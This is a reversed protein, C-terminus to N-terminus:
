GAAQRAVLDDLIAATATAGIRTAGANMADIFQDLTRIGGAAKVKVKDSVSARMLKLHEITAGSSAYGTSTKVYHAGAAETLHCARVIEDDTLYANEFIVKVIASGECARVVAAIEDGVELDLGSRLHGINIVMDIEVAGDEAARATEYVKVDTTSNGHPFGIVTGVLVDTGALEKGCLVIDAPKCCVSATDYNAAVACGAIVEDITLEPKLQSHDITKAAVQPTLTSVTYM